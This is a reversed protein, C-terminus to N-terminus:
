AKARRQEVVATVARVSVGQTRREGTPYQGDLDKAWGLECFYGGLADSVVRVEGAEFIQGDHKVLELMEVRM